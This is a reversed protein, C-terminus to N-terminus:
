NDNSIPKSEDSQESVIPATPLYVAFTSGQNLTSSVDIRGNHAEVLAKTIHLGLGSGSVNSQRAEKTRYFRTFLATVEEPTMGKGNDSVQLLCEGASYRTHIYIEGEKRTYKVANSILNYLIQWLRGPDAWAWVPTEHLQCHVQRHQSTIYINMSTLVNNVVSNLDCNGLEIMLKGAELQELDLLDTILQNLRRAEDSIIQLSWKATDEQVFDEALEAHLQIVTLPSRLDHAAMSLFLSKLENLHQLEQNATALQQKILRLENRDQVIQQRAQGLITNDEVLLLLGTQSNNSSLPNIQFTLYDISGNEHSRNVNELRLYPLTGTLVATLSEEMGVLEDLLTTISQGLSPAVPIQLLSVFNASYQQITLDSALQAYAFHHMTQLAEMVM